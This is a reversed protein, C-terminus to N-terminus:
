NAKFVVEFGSGGAQVPASLEIFNSGPNVALAQGNLLASEVFFGIPARVDIIRNGGSLPRYTGSLTNGRQSVDLLATKLSFIKSPVRPAIRIGKSIADVGAVRLAALMPMSHQNNNMVPFDVMPTVPSYWSEGPRDGGPGNLGDPGSWIGYWIDPFAVAHAAMTNKALHDFALNEEANAYGWTLLASIAPWVQGGPVLAAGAPSPMDLNSRIAEVLAAKDAAGGATDGATGGILAWVQAELNITNDYALKGDGFYARGFFSGTWAQKLADRMAQVRMDIEASLVPDRDKILESVRPLIAVAMQTNPVSEGKEIALNRDKAEMVIGDSWDGTQVRILGHEGTGVTDFLHRIADHIHDWVIAGPVSEKPYFPMPEDLFALDGTAGIYESIGWLLFITLDSPAKHLGLADDLMGHGQFAYSIRRDQAHTIMMNLALEEKALSPHTYVLPVAFLSLDRAAGDAGHLYLYASGQPVVHTNWYDRRGVSAEMQYSHWALERHLVPDRDAAFLMLNPKLNEIYEGLLDRGPDRFAEDLVFPEGMPAYGYAFRLSIAQGPELKFDSRMALMRPQGMGNSSAGVIGDSIGHGASKSFVAQPSAIGGEGFFAQQESYVDAVDGVLASLFPDGPYFDIPNPADKPPPAMGAHERRLGLVKTKSDYSVTEGFIENAQDRSARASGPASSLPIGSVLWNIEIPRRAVDWMEYHKLSRARSSLNEIRVEDIVFPSDGKPAFTKRSIQLERATTIFEAYGMGFRRRTVSGKPRWKYATCFAQEGDDIYSFGGAFQKGDADFKNLYDVGRDQNAIEIYGDNYAMANIRSNGFAAWHERRDLGETNFFAARADTNQNLGYEYAPLGRDDLVWTGFIGSGTNCPAFSQLADLNPSACAEPPPVYPPESPPSAPPASDNGCSLLMSTAFFFSAFLDRKM